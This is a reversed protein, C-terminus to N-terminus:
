ESDLIYLFGDFYALYPHRINNQIFKKQIKMSVPSYNKYKGINDLIEGRTLSM